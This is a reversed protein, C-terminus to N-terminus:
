ESTSEGRRAWDDGIRITIDSELDGVSAPEVNGFGLSEQLQKASDLDGQQVIIETNTQHDSWDATVFTNAFGLNQLQTRLQSAAHPQSSANQIAIRLTQLKPPPSAGAALSDLSFYQKLVRDRGTSDMIWYSAAYESPQSFRGPLMVLKFDGQSIRRGGASVLALMEELTLNTDIYKQMAAILSPLRPIVMPNTIRERLAKLLVQQRQVRGIDGYADQRFRAFQEAQNGNLTQWGPQLDIKLKQTKDTYAMKTPVYVRVGGLLDVLERFADTSVRVYRDIAVGNLTASVTQAALKAGGRVNADNAKTMVDSNPLNVRTDRPISLLSVTEKTPDVRLLIMTDSRGSFMTPSGPEAGPVRDIGMVLVNVPRAVRYQFGYKLIEDISEPGRDNPFLSAPLPMVLMAILGLAASTVGTLTLSVGQGLRRLFGRKPSPPLAIAASESSQSATSQGNSQDHSKSSPLNPNSLQGM